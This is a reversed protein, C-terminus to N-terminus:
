CGVCVKAEVFLNGNPMRMRMSWLLDSGGVLNSHVKHAFHADLARGYAELAVAVRAWSAELDSVGIWNSLATALRAM